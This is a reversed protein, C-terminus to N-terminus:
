PLDQREFRQLLRDLQDEDDQFSRFLPSLSSSNAIMAFNPELGSDGLPAPVCATSSPPQGQRPQRASKVEALEAAFRDLIRGHDELKRLMLLIRARDEEGGGPVGSGSSQGAVAVTGGGFGGRPRGSQAVGGACSSDLGDGKHGMVSEGFSSYRRPQKPAAGAQQTHLQEQQQWVVNEDRDYGGATRSSLAPPVEGARLNKDRVRGRNAAREEALVRLVRAREEEDERRKVAAELERRARKEEVQRLLADELERREKMQRDLCSQEEPPLRDFRYRRRPPSLSVTASETSRRGSGGDGADPLHSAASRSTRLPSGYEAEGRDTLTFGFPTENEGIENPSLDQAILGRLKARHYAKVNTVLTGDAHRLPAGSGPKGWPNYTASKVEHREELERIRRDSQERRAAADAVQSNLERRYAEQQVRRRERDKTHNAQGVDLQFEAAPEAM